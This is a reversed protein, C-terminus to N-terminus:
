SGSSLRSIWIAWAWLFIATLLFYAAYAWDQQRHWEHTLRKLGQPPREKKSLDLPEGREATRLLRINRRRQDLKRWEEISFVAFLAMGLTWTGLTSWVFIPEPHDWKFNMIGVCIGSLFTVVGLRVNSFHQAWGNADELLALAIGVRADTSLPERQQLLQIQAKLQGIEARLQEVEDAGDYPQDAHSEEDPSRHLESM